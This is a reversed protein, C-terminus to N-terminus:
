GFLNSKKEEVLTWAMQTRDLCEFFLGCFWVLIESVIHDSRAYKPRKSKYNGFKNKPLINDHGIFKIQEPYFEIDRDHIIDYEKFYGDHAASIKWYNKKSLFM